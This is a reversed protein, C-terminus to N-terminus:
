GRSSLVNKEYKRVEDLWSLGAPVDMAACYQDWVA